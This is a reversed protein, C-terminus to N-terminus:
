KRNFLTLLLCYRILWKNSSPLPHISASWTPNSFMYIKWTIRKLKSCLLSAPIGIHPRRKKHQLCEFVKCRPHVWSLRQSYSYDNHSAEVNFIHWSKLFQSNCHFPFDGESVTDGEEWPYSLNGVLCEFSIIIHHILNESYQGKKKNYKKEEWECDAHEM